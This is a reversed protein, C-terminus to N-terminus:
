TEHRIVSQMAANVENLLISSTSHDRICSVPHTTALNTLIAVNKDVAHDVVMKTAHSRAGLFATFAV